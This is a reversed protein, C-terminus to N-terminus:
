ERIQRGDVPSDTRVSPAVAGKKHVIIQGTAMKAQALAFGQADAAVFARAIALEPMEGREIEDLAVTLCAKAIATAEEDSIHSSEM